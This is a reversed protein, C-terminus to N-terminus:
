PIARKLDIIQLSGSSSNTLFLTNGDPSLRMERPFAGAQIHSVVRLRDASLVDLVQAKSRTRGLPKDGL